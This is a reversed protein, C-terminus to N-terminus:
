NPSKTPSKCKSNRKSQKGCQAESTALVDIAKQPNSGGAPPRMSSTIRREYGTALLEGLEALVAENPMRAPDTSRM